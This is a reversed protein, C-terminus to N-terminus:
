SAAGRTATKAADTASRTEPPAGRDRKSLLSDIEGRLGTLFPGPGFREAHSRIAEADFAGREAELRAM